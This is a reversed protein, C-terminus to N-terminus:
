PLRVKLTASVLGTGADGLYEFVRVYYEGAGSFPELWVERKDFPSRFVALDGPRTPYVPDPNQSWVVKYGMPFDGFPMFVLRRGDLDLEIRKGLDGPQEPPPPAEMYVEIQRSWLIIRGQYWAGVRVYYVGTGAFPELWAEKADGLARVYARDGSREPYVPDPSRSYVLKYAEPIEGTTLGVPHDWKVYRDDHVIPIDPPTAPSTVCGAASLVLLLIFSTKMAELYRM